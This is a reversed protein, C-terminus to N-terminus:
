SHRILFNNLMRLIKNAPISTIIDTVITCLWTNIDNNNISSNLNLIALSLLALAGITLMMQGTGM